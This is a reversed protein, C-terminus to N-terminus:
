GVSRLVWLDLHEGEDMVVAYLGRGCCRFVVPLNIQVCGYSTVVGLAIIRARRCSEAEVAVARSVACVTCPSPAYLMLIHRLGRDLRPTLWM